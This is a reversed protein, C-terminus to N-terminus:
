LKRLARLIAKSYYPYLENYIEEVSKKGDVNVYVESLVEGCDVEETMRHVGVSAIRGKDKFLRQVPDAGKYDSLGPHVNISAIRPLEFLSKPVIERGHVCILLDCDSLLEEVEPEKVSRYIPIELMVAQGGMMEDYAVAGVVKYGASLVTLLGICGAQKGGLYVVKM